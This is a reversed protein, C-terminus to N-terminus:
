ECKHEGADNILKLEYATKLDQLVNKYNLVTYRLVVWGLQQAANYKEADGTYGTVTTHRSKKSMVGEFEVAIKVKAFAWDFRWRRTEHFYFEERLDGFQEKNEYEFWYLQEKMWNKERSLEPAKVISKEKPGKSSKKMVEYGRIKGAKQKEDLQKETWNM